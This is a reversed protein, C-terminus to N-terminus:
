SSKKNRKRYEEIRENYISVNLYNELLGLRTGLEERREKEGKLENELDTNSFWSFWSRGLAFMLVLFWFGGIFGVAGGFLLLSVNLGTTLIDM